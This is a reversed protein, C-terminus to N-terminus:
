KRQLVIKNAIRNELCIELKKFLKMKEESFCDIFMDKNVNYHVPYERFVSGNTRKVEALFRSLHSLHFLCTSTDYHYVAVPGELKWEYMKVWLVGDAFLHANNQSTYEEAKYITLLTPISLYKPSSATKYTKRIGSSFRLAM